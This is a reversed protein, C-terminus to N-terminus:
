VKPGFSDRVDGFQKPSPNLSRQELRMTLAEVADLVRGADFMVPSVPLSPGVAYVGIPLPEGEPQTPQLETAGVKKLRTCFSEWSQREVSGWNEGRATATEQVWGWPKEV